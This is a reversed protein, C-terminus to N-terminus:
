YLQYGTRNVSIMLSGFIRLVKVYLKTWCDFSVYIFTLFYRFHLLMPCVLRLCVFVCCLIHRVGIYAFMRMYRLYSM